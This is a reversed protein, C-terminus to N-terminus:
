LFSILCVFFYFRSFYSVFPIHQFRADYIYTELRDEYSKVKQKIGWIKFTKRNFYSSENLNENIIANLEDDSLKGYTKRNLDWQNKIEDYAKKSQIYDNDIKQIENEIEQIESNIQSLGKKLTLNHSLKSKSFNYIVRMQLTRLSISDEDVFSFKGNEIVCFIDKYSHSIVYFGGEKRRKDEKWTEIRKNISSTTKYVGDRIVIEEGDKTVGITDNNNSTWECSRYLEEFAERNPLKLLDNYKNAIDWSIYLWYTEGITKNRELQELFKRAIVLNDFENHISNRKNQITNIKNSAEQFEKKSDDYIKKSTEAVIKRIKEAIFRTKLFIFSYWLFFLFPVIVFLILLITSEISSIYLIM